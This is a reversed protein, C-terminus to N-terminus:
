GESLYVHLVLREAVSSAILELRVADSTDLEKAYDAGTQQLQRLKQVAEAAQEAGQLRAAEPQQEPWADVGHELPVGATAAAQTVQRQLQEMLHAPDSSSM